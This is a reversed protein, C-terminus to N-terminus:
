RAVIGTFLGDILIRVNAYLWTKRERLHFFRLAEALTPYSPHTPVWVGPKALTEVEVTYTKM